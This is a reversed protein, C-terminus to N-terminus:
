IHENNSNLEVKNQLFLFLSAGSIINQYLSAEVTFQIIWFMAYVFGLKIITTHSLFRLSLFIILFGIVGQKVFHTLYASDMSVNSINIDRYEFWPIEFYYGFGYGFVYHIWDMDFIPILGPYYRNLLQQSFGEQTMSEIIREQGIFSSFKIFLFIIFLSGLFYKLFQLFKISRLIGVGILTALLVVRSNSILVSLISLVFATRENKLSSKLNIFRYQQHFLFYISFYTSLDVYRNSNTQYFIDQFQILGVFGFLFYILNTIGALIAIRNIDTQTISIPANLFIILLLFFEIFHILPRLDKLVMILERDIFGVAIFFYISYIIVFISLARKIKKSIFIRNSSLLYLIYPVLGIFFGDLVSVGNYYHLSVYHNGFPFCLAITIGLVIFFRPRLISALGICFFLIFAYGFM